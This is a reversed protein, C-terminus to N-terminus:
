HRLQKDIYNQRDPALDIVWREDIEMSTKSIAKTNEDM